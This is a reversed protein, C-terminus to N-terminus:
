PDQSAIYAEIAANSTGASMGLRLARGIRGAKQLAVVPALAGDTAVAVGLAVPDLIAAGIRMATGWGGYAGLKADNEAMELARKRLFKAHAPSVADELYEHYVEPLGETIEAWTEETYNFDMDPIFDERGMQALAWSGAWESSVAAGVADLLGVDGQAEDMARQLAKEEATTRFTPAASASPVELGEPLNPAFPELGEIDINKAINALKNGYAPDTAYGSAGMATIQADLGEAEMVAKYRPNQLIFDGYGDFSDGPSQYGRFNQKKTVMRGGEFEQTVLDAGGSKGHSKIGFYNNNPASKGYGTELATQALILRPDLGTRKSVRQAHPLMQAFFDNPSAM